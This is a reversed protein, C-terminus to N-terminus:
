GSTFDDRYSEFALDENDSAQGRVRAHGASDLDVIRGLVGPGLYRLQRHRQVM